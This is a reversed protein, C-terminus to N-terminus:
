PVPNVYTRFGMDSKDIPLSVGNKYLEGYAYGSGGSQYNGAISIGQQSTSFEFTFIDSINFLLNASSVDWTYLGGGGNDPDYHLDSQSITIQQSFLAAGMAPNSGSYISFSFKQDFVPNAIQFEIGHLEGTIGTTISQTWSDTGLDIEGATGFIRGQDKILDYYPITENEDNSFVEEDYPDYVRGEKRGYLLYHYFAEAQGWSQPLDPYIELYATEDFSAIRGEQRGFYIYHAYTQDYTWDQPLDPYLSLYEQADFALLRNEFKGFLNYHRLAEEYTWTAPLDPNANLYEELNFSAARNEFFGFLKYHEMCEAKTWTQPLDPNAALYALHDFGQKSIQTADDCGDPIGDDDSDVSDDHGPCIDEPDPVGDYDSDFNSVCPDSEGFDVVGNRNADEVGDLVGDDDTDADRPDTCGSSEIADTLGDRDMDENDGSDGAGITVISGPESVVANKNFNLPDTVHPDTQTRIFFSYSTDPRLNVVDFTDVNKDTTMGAEIWKGGTQEAYFIRYGGDDDTYAIPTWSLRVSTPSLAQVALDEPAVTQTTDWGEQLYTNLFDIVAPNSTHLANHNIRPRGCSLPNLDTLKLIEVPIEGSLMNGHLYFMYLEPLSDFIERPIPGSLRNDNLYISDIKPNLRSLEKPISGTLDNDSAYFHTLKHLNGLEKPIPGGIRNGMIDLRILNELNSLEVPISGSFDNKGLELWFLKSLNGLELPLSGSFQNGQLKLTELKNLNGIASSLSGSLNNYDLGLYDLNTLNFLEPPITGDLQNNGLGLSTLSRLNGLEVPIEGSLNNGDLALAEINKLQGLQAPIAGSIQNNVITLHQLSSMNGITTPISGSLTNFTLELKELNGLNGLSEPIPGSLRNGYISLVRLSALNGVEEPIEGEFWCNTFLLERLNTLNGISDPIKGGISHSRKQPAQIDIFKNQIVLSELFRLDGISPPLYGTLVNGDTMELSRVHGNSVWVGYWTGETGPDNFSGDPKKWNDNHTWNDGDTALYFDILAGRETGYLSDDIIVARGPSPSSIIEPQAVSRAQLTVSYTGNASWAHSAAPTESWPSSSGDGWDFRYEIRGSHSDRSLESQYEYSDGTRGLTAGTPANPAYVFYESPYIDITARDSAFDTGYSYIDDLAFYTDETGGYGMNLHVQNIGNLIRYGSAVVAHGGGGSPPRISLLVPRGVDLQNKFVSFWDSWSAYDDRYVTKVDPSYKFFTKLVPEWFGPSTGSGELGYNMEVAIGADSMLTTVAAIEIDTEDGVLPDKMNAWDYPHAFDASLMVDNWMYSQIGQGESPYRWFYMVQALSVAVCGVLTHEGDVLPTQLNYPYGQEWSSTILPAVFPETDTQTETQATSANSSVVIKLSKDLSWAQENVRLQEEDVPDNAALTRLMAHAHPGGYGLRTASYLLRRRLERIFPHDAMEDFYGSYSVFKVPSLETFAPVILFGSPEIDVVYGVLDGEEYLERTMAHRFPGHTLRQEWHANDRKIWQIAVREAERRSVERAEAAVSALLILIFSIIAYRCYRRFWEGSLWHKQTHMGTREELGSILIKLRNGALGIRSIDIHDTRLIIM